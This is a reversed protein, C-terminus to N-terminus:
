RKAPPTANPSLWWETGPAAAVRGAPLHAGRGSIIQGVREAKDVGTVLFVRERSRTLVQLTLSFRQHFPPAASFGAVGESTNRTWPCGPFLSATHGDAGLGLLIFDFVPVEEADRPVIALAKGFGALTQAPYEPFVPFSHFTGLRPSDAFLTAQIMGQNSDPHHHPVNREDVPFWHVNASWDEGLQLHRSALARLLPPATRGGSVAVFLPSTRAKLLRLRELLHGTFFDVFGTDDPAILIEPPSM